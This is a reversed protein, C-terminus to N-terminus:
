KQLTLLCQCAAEMLLLYLNAQVQLKPAYPTLTAGNDHWGATLSDSIRFEFVYARVCITPMSHTNTYEISSICSLPSRVPAFIVSTYVCLCQLGM